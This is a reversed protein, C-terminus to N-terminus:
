SLANPLDLLVTSIVNAHMAKMFRGNMASTVTAGLSAISNKYNRLSENMCKMCYGRGEAEAQCFAPSRMLVTKGVYQGINDNTLLIPQGSPGVIYSGLYRSKAYPFITRTVGNKTGCDEKVIAAASYIRFVLKTLVGGLATKKGRSYSGERIGDIIAPFASVDTTESLSTTIFAPDKNPDMYKQQGQMVYMKKRGTEIQKRYNNYFGVHPDQNVYELDAEILRREIEVIDTSGIKKGKYEELIKKKLADIGPAPTVTYYTSSPSNVPIFGSLASICRMLTKVEQTYVKSPDLPTDEPPDDLCTMALEKVIKEFDIKPGEQYPYKEKLAYYITYMNIFFLGPTTEVKSSSLGPYDEPTIIIPENVHVIREGKLYDISKGNLTVEVMEEPSRSNDFDQAYFHPKGNKLYLQGPFHKETRSETLNATLFVSFVWKKKKYAGAQCAKIFYSINDM